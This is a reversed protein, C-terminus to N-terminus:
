RKIEVGLSMARERAADTVICRPLCRIVAVGKKWAEEVDRETVLDMPPAEEARPAAQAAPHEGGCQCGGGHQCNGGCACSKSEGGGPEVLELLSAGTICFANAEDTDLHVELDHGDGVRCVVQELLGVLNTLNAQITQQYYSQARTPNTKMMELVETASSHLEKHLPELQSRLALVEADETGAEGYLWQGLVCGTPDVSGTFETGAYLANSLNASWKYHATEAQQVRNLVSSFAKSDAQNNQIHFINFTTVFSFLMISFLAAAVRIAVTRKISKRM